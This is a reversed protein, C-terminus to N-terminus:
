LKCSSEPKERIQRGAASFFTLNIAKKTAWYQFAVLTSGGILILGMVMWWHVVFPLNLMHQLESPTTPNLIAIAASFICILGMIVMTFVSIKKRVQGLLNDDAHLYYLKRGAYVGAVVGLVPHFIPVGMFSAFVVLALLLYVIALLPLPIEYIHKILRKIFFVDLLVGILLGTLAGAPVYKEPLVLFSLWWAPFFICAPMALCVFFGVIISELKNM